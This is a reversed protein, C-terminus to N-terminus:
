YFSCSVTRNNSLPVMYNAMDVFQHIFDVPGSVNVKATDYLELAKNFQRKGIIETNEFMDNGPGAAKCLQVKGNCTSTLLDCPKGTDVCSAGKINPSVDGLNSSSFGAVFEGQGPFNDFNFEKEMLYAAYGKNDGSILRNSSNMSVPHVAFWNISGVDSNNKGILKLLFMEKDVDYQYKQREEEPNNQYAAPSRNINSELLEGENLMLAGDALNEHAQEISEVIGDVIIDINADVNGLSTLTFLLYQQYGGPGSHTHTGSIVTNSVNYQGLGNESLKKFVKENILQSGMGLDVTVFVNCKDQCFIFARSFLRLHIGGTIQVPNAYGMMNVDSAPGTVDAIGAGIKYQDDQAFGGRFLWLFRLIIFIFSWSGLSIFSM